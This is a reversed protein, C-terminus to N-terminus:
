RFSRAISGVFGSVGKYYYSKFVYHDLAYTIGVAVAAAMLANKM